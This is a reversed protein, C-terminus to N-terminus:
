AKFYLNINTVLSSNCFHVTKSAKGKMRRDTKGQEQIEEGRRVKVEIKRLDRGRLTLTRERRQVTRVAGKDTTGPEVVVEAEGVEGEGIIEIWVLGEDEEGAIEKVLEAGEETMETLVEAGVGTMRTPLGVGERKVLGEWEGIMGRGEGTMRTAPHEAGERMGIGAGVKKIEGERTSIIGEEEKGTMESSGEEGRTRTGGQDEITKESGEIKIGEGIEEVERMESSLKTKRRISERVQIKRRIIEGVAEEQGMEVLNTETTASMRLAGGEARGETETMRGGAKMEGNRGEEEETKLMREKTRCLRQIKATTKSGKRM